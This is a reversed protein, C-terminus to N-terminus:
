HEHVRAASPRPNGHEDLMVPNAEKSGHYVYVMIGLFLLMVGGLFWPFFVPGSKAESM